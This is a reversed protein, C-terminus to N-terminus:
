DTCDASNFILKVQHSRLASHFAALLQCPGECGEGGEEARVESREEGENSRM